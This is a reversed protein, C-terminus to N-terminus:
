QSSESSSSTPFARHVQGLGPASGQLAKSEAALLSSHHELSAPLSSISKKKQVAKIECVGDAQPQSILLLLWSAIKKKRRQCASEYLKAM